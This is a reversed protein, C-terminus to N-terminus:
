RQFWFYFFNTNEVGKFFIMKGFNPHIPILIFFIQSAVVWMPVKLLKIKSNTKFLTPRWWGHCVRVCGQPSAVVRWQCSERSDDVVIARCTKTINSKSSIGSFVHNEQFTNWVMETPAFLSTRFCFFCTFDPVQVTVVFTQYTDHHIM